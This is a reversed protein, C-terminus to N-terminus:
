AGGVIVVAEELDVDIARTLRAGAAVSSRAGESRTGCGAGASCSGNFCWARGSPYGRLNTECSMSRGTLFCRLSVAMLMAMTVPEAPRIPESATGSSRRSLSPGDDADVVVHATAEEAVFGRGRSDRGSASGVEPRPVFMRREVDAVVVAISARKAASRGRRDFQHDVGGGLGRVIPGGAFRLGIEETFALPVRLRSSATRWGVGGLRGNMKVESSCLRRRRGWDGAAADFQRGAPLDVRRVLVASPM